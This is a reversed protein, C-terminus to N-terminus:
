VHLRWWSNVWEASALDDRKEAQALARKDTAIRYHKANVPLVKGTMDRTVEWTCVADQKMGRTVRWGRITAIMDGRSNIIVGTLKNM